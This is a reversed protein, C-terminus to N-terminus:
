GTRPRRAGPPLPPQQGFRSDLELLAYWPDLRMFEDPYDTYKHLYEFIEKALELTSGYEVPESPLYLRQKEVMELAPFWPIYITGDPAELESVFSTRESM